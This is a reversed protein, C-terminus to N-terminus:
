DVFSRGCNKCGSPDFWTYEIYSNACRRCIKEKGKLIEHYGCPCIMKQQLSKYIMTPKECSPCKFM